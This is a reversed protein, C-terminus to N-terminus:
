DRALPGRAALDIQRIAGLHYALHVASAIMGTLEVEDIERRQQIAVLWTQAQRALADRLERWAADDVHQRRWSAGYDAAAFPDKEGGAWRNLLELGYRLHDVHAAISSRGNPRASAAAASLAELSALLGRDGANLAWGADAEAGDILERLVRALANRVGEPVQM